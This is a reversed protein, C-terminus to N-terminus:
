KGRKKDSKKYKVSVNPNADATEAIPNFAATEAKAKAEADAKAKAKAEADAKIKAEAKKKAATKIEPNPVEEAFGGAIVRRGKPEGFAVVDGITTNGWKKLMHLYITKM